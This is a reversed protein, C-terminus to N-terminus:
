RCARLTEGAARAAATEAANLARTGGACCKAADEPPVLSNAPACYLAFEVTGSRNGRAFNVPRRWSLGKRTLRVAKNWAGVCRTDSAAAAQRTPDLECWLAHRHRVCCEDHDWSGGNIFCSGSACLATAPLGTQPQGCQAGVAGFCFETQAITISPPRPVPTVAPRQDRVTAGLTADPTSGCSPGGSAPLALDIALLTMDPSAPSFAQRTGRGSRSATAVFPEQPVPGFRVNGQQDTTGRHFQNPSSATGICVTASAVAAGTSASTVHVRLAGLPTTPPSQGFAAGPTITLAALLWVAYLRTAWRPTPGITSTGGSTSVRRLSAGAHRAPQSHNTRANIPKM